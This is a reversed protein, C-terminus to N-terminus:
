VKEKNKTPLNYELFLGGMFRIKPAYYCQGYERYMTINQNFLNYINARLYVSSDKYTFLRISTGIKADVYGKVREASSGYTRSSATELGFYLSWREFPTIYIMGNLRNKPTAPLDFGTTSDKANTYTYNLVFKFKDNPEWTAKAEYGDIKARDINIYKGPFSIYDYGIYDKYRSNFYGFDFSLKENFFSQTIGVDWSNM